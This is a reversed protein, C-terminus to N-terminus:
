RSSMARAAAGLGFLSWGTFFIQIGVLLGIAWAGSFPWQSYILLALLLTVLGSLLTWIWGKTPKLKLAYGIEFAGEVLFYASLVLTLTSLGLLPHALVVLGAVATLLGILVGLVGSGLTPAGFSFLTRTIGSFLMLVGVMIAIAVGTILPSGMALIGLIVLVIGTIVAFTGHKRVEESQKPANENTM